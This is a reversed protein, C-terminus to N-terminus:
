EIPERHRCDIRSDAAAITSTVRDAFFCPLYGGFCRYVEPSRCAGRLIREPQNPEYIHLRPTFYRCDIPRSYPAFCCGRTTPQSSGCEDAEDMKVLEDAADKLAGAAAAIKKRVKERKTM